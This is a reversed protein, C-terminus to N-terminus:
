VPEESEAAPGASGSETDNGALANLLSMQFMGCTEMVTYNLVTEETVQFEDPKPCGLLEWSGVRLDNLVQLLWEVADRPITLRMATGELRIHAPNELFKRLAVANERKHEALSDVLLAQASDDPADRLTLAPPKPRAVPYGRLANLFLAMERRGLVFVFADPRTQLLKV